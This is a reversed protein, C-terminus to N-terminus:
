DVRTQVTESSARMAVEDAADLVGIPETVSEPVLEEEQPVASAEEQQVAQGAAGDSAEGQQQM